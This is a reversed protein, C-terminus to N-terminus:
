ENRQSRWRRKIKGVFHTTTKPVTVMQGVFHIGYPLSEKTTSLLKSIKVWVAVSIENDVGGVVVVGDNKLAMCIM